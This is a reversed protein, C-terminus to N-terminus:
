GLTKYVNEPSLTDSGKREPATKMYKLLFAVAASLVADSFDAGFEIHETIM